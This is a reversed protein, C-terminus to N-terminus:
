NIKFRSTLYYLNFTKMKLRIGFTKCHKATWNMDVGSIKCEMRKWILVDIVQPVIWFSQCLSSDLPLIFFFKFQEGLGANIARRAVFTSIDRFFVLNDKFDSQDNLCFNSDGSFIRRGQYQRPIIEFIALVHFRILSGKASTHFSFIFHFSNKFIFNFAACNVWSHRLSHRTCIELRQREGNPLLEQSLCIFVKQKM